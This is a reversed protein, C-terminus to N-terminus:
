SHFYGLGPASLFKWEIQAYPNEPLVQSILALNLSRFWVAFIYSETAPIPTRTWGLPSLPRNWFISHGLVAEKCSHYWYGFNRHRSISLGLRLWDKIGFHYRKAWPFGGDENQTNVTAIIVKQLAKRIDDRRYDIHQYMNVLTDVADLDECAGGGGVSSFLGDPQQILLTNDIIQEVYKLPRNMYYYLLYQHMAGFLGTHIPTGYNTGWFGTKPDQFNNHWDFFSELADRTKSDNNLEYDAILCIGLFMAVNGATWTRKKWDLDQLWAAVKDSNKWEDLFRFPYRIEGGLAKLTSICFTTGQWTVYALDHAKGLYKSFVREKKLWPDIFFGTEEDQWSNILDIWEQRQGPTINKLDNYLEKLFIAFCSSFLTAETSDSMKYTGYQTDEVMLSELWNLVDQKLEDPNRLPSNQGIMRM